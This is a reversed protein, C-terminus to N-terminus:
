MILMILTGDKQMLNGEVLWAASLDKGLKLGLTIRQIKGLTTKFDHTHQPGSFNIASFVWPGRVM